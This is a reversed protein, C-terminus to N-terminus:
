PTIKAYPHSSPLSTQLGWTSALYGELVQAEAVTIGRNYVLIEAFNVNASLRHNIFFNSTINGTLAGYTNVNSVTRTVGNRRFFVGGNLNNDSVIAIYWTNTNFPPVGQGSSDQYRKWTALVGTRNMAYLDFNAGSFYSGQVNNINSSHETMFFNGGTSSNFVVAWTNSPTLTMTTTSSLNQITTFSVVPLGNLVNSVYTPRAGSSLVLANSSKDGWVNVSTGGLQLTTSDAADLWLSLNSLAPPLFAPIRPPSNLTLNSATPITLGWKNALYRDILRRSSSSM